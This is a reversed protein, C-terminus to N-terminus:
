IVVQRTLHRSPKVEFHAYATTTTSDAHRYLIKGFIDSTEGVAEEYMDKGIFVDKASM